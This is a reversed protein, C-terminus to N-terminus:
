KIWDFNPSSSLICFCLSFFVQCFYEPRETKRKLVDGSREGWQRQSITRKNEKILNFWFFKKAAGPRQQKNNPSERTTTLLPLEGIVSCLSRKNCHVAELTPASYNHKVPKSGGHCTSDEQVPSQIQTRWISLCIRIWQVVLSTRIRYM